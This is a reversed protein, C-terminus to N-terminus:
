GFVIGGDATLTRSNYSLEAGSQDCLRLGAAGIVAHAAAIDWEMASPSSSTGDAGSELKACLALAVSGGEGPNATAGWHPNSQGSIHLAKGNFGRKFAGKGSRGYYTVGKAPAHVVGYIPHGDEILAINVTFDGSRGAFAGRGDLPDVLWVHNWRKREAYPAPEEAPSLVPIDANLKKLGTVMVKHAAKSAADTADRGLVTKVARDLLRLGALGSRAGQLQAAVAGEYRQL